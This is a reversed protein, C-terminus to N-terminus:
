FDGAEGSSCILAPTEAMSTVACRGNKAAYASRDQTFAAM